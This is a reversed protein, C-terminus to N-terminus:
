QVLVISQALEGRNRGHRKVRYLADDASEILTAIGSGTGPLVSAIRM